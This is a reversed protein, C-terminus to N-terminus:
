GPKKHQKAANASSASVPPKKNQDAPPNKVPTPTPAPTGPAKSPTTAPPNGSQDESNDSMVSGQLGYANWDENGEQSSFEFWQARVDDGISNKMIVDPKNDTGILRILDKEGDYTGKTAWVKRWRDGALQQTAQPSGTIIAHRNGKAYWYEVQAALIAAPYKRTTKGSRVEDDEDKDQQTEGPAPPNSAAVSEPVVPKFPPIEGKDPKLEREMSDKPKVLMRVNGSLVARKDKRYVVVKDCAMDTKKSFYLCNGTATIVDTKENREITDGQVVVEGDTAMASHWVDIGAKSFAGGNSLFTWKTPTDQGTEEQLKPKGVWTSPGVTGNGTNVNYLFKTASIDGGFFRGHIEKPISLAGTRQDVTFSPVALDFDKNSVNAGSNVMLRLANADWTASDANFDIKGQDSYIVGNYVRQLDFTSQDNKLDVEGVHAQGILQDKHYQKLDVDKLTAMISGAGPNVKGFRAFPDAHILHGVYGVGLGAGVLVLGLIVGNRILKQRDM